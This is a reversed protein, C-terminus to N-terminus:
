YLLVAKAGVIEKSTVCILEFIQATMQAIMRTAFQALIYIFGVKTSLYLPQMNLCELINRLSLFVKAGILFSQISIELVRHHFPLYLM